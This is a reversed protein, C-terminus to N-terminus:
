VRGHRILRAGLGARVLLSRRGGLLLLGRADELKVVDGGLRALERALSQDVQQPVLRRHGDRMKLVDERGQSISRISEQDLRQLVKVPVPRHGLGQRPFRQREAGVERHVAKGM